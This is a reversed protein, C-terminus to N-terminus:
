PGRWRNNSPRSAFRFGVGIGILVGAVSAALPGLIVLDRLVTSRIDGSPPSGHTIATGSLAPILVAILLANAAILGVTGWLWMRWAFPVLKRLGSFVCTALTSLAGVVTLILLILASFGFPV